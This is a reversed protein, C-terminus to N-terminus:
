FDLDQAQVVFDILPSPKEVRGNVAEVVSDCIDICGGALAKTARWRSGNQRLRTARFKSIDHRRHQARAERSFM